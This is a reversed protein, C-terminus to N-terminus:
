PDVNVCWVSVLVEIGTVASNVVASLLGWRNIWWFLFLFLFYPKCIYHFKEDMFFLLTMDNGPYDTCHSTIMHLSNLKDCFFINCTPEWNCSKFKMFIFVILCACLIHIYFCFQKPSVLLCLLYPYSLPLYHPIGEFYMVFSCFTTKYYLRFYSLLCSLLLLFCVQLNM